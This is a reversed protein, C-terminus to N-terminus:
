EVPAKRRLEEFWNRVLHLQTPWFPYPNLQDSGRLGIFRDESFIDWNRSSASSSGLRIAPELQQSLGPVPGKPGETVPVRHVAGRRYYLFRGDPSWVPSMLGRGSGAPVRIIKGGSVAKLYIRVFLPGESESALFAISKGSPSFTAARADGRDALLEVMKGHTDLTWLDHGTDGNLFGLVALKGDRDWEIAVLSGKSEFEIKTREDDPINSARQKWLTAEGRRDEIFSFEDAGPGWAIDRLREESRVLPLSFKDEITYLSIRRRDMLLVSKSDYSVRMRTYTEEVDLPEENGNRDLWVPRTTRAPYVGGPAYAMLGSDSISFQAAGTNRSDHWVEVSHIVDELVLIEPGLTLSDPDFTKAYLSGNRAFVLHGSAAYRAHSANSVLPTKEKTALSYAFIRDPKGAELETFLISKGDPLFSPLRAKSSPRDTPSIEQVEGGTEPIIKLSNNEAFILRGEGWDLGHLESGYFRAKPWERLTEPIGGNVSITRLYVGEGIWAGRPNNEGSNTFYGISQSDPSFVPSDVNHVGALFTTSGDELRRIYLRNKFQPGWAGHELRASDALYAVLKGDPSVAVGRQYNNELQEGEPMNIDVRLLLKPEPSDLVTRGWWGSGLALLVIPIALWLLPSAYGKQLEGAMGPLLIEQERSDQLRTLDTHIERASQYRREPERALMKLVLYQFVTPVEPRHVGVPSPDEQLIATATSLADPKIFPHVGTLMEYLIIGLSFIDSRSDLEEGKLQEPSMYPVTGVVMGERTLQDQTVDLLEEHTAGIRKALGFDMVKVHGEATLMINAPKLDRHVIGTQQAKDLADAVAGAIRLCERIPLPGEAMTDKLMQGSVYEMAIFGIGDVEGIEHIQCIYPHALAAASRAERLFRRRANEDQAMSEPLFKLAVNRGLVKDTARYVEGMGGEGIKEEITYQGFARGIM